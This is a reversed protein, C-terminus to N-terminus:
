IQRGIVAGDNVAWLRKRVGSCDGAIHVEPFENKLAYYLDNDEVGGYSLILTDIDEVRDGRTGPGTLTVDNGSISKLSTGPSM